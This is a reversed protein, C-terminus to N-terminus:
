EECEVLAVIQKAKEVVSNMQEETLNDVLQYVSSRYSMILSRIMLPMGDVAQSILDKLIQKQKNLKDSM